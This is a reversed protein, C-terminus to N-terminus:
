VGFVSVNVLVAMAIVLTQFYNITGHASENLGRLINLRENM